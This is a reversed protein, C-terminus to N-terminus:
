LTLDFYIGGVEFFERNMSSSVDTDEMLCEVNLPIDIANTSMVKKLRECSKLLRVRAKVNSM